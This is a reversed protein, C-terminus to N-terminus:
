GACAAAALRHAHDRVDKPWGRTLEEFRARNGAFLARTAVVFGAEYGAM